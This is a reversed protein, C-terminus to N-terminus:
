LCELAAQLMAEHALEAHGYNETPTHFSLAAPLQHLPNSASFASFAVLAMGMELAAEAARVINESAGSSSVAVLLDGRQASAALPKRFIEQHGYDNAMCTILSPDNFTRARLGCKVLLDQAVHSAIAASGGNGICYVARGEIRLRSWLQVLEDLGAALPLPEGKRKCISQDLM